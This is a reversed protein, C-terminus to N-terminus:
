FCSKVFKWLVHVWNCCHWVIKSLEKVSTLSNKHSKKSFPISLSMSLCVSLSLSLSLPLPQHALSYLCSLSFSDASPSKLLIQFWTVLKINQKETRKSLYCVVAINRFINPRHLINKNIYQTTMLVKDANLKHSNFTQKKFLGLFSHFHLEKQKTPDLSTKVNQFSLGNSPRRQFHDVPIYLM